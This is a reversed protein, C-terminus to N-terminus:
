NAPQYILKVTGNFVLLYNGDAGAEQTLRMSDATVIGAPGTATVDTPLLLDTVDMAATLTEGQVQWGSSSTVTVGGSLLIQRSAPDIRGAAAVLDTRAGDPTELVGNLTMASAGAGNTAAPRAEDATVTLAAGDNTLGAFTPATMRPERLREEVDVEAYPIADDPNITRAVLFLTSLIVLALLPLVIKLWGILRSHTDTEIM